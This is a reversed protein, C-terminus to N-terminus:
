LIIHAFLLFLYIFVRLFPLLFFHSRGQKNHTQMCIRPLADGCSVTRRLNRWCTQIFGHDFFLCVDNNVYTLIIKGRQRGKRRSSYISSSIINHHSCTYVYENLVQERRNSLQQIFWIYTM